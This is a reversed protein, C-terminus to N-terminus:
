MEAKEHIIKSLYFITESIKLFFSEATVFDEKAAM